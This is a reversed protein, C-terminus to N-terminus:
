LDLTRPRILLKVDDIEIQFNEKGFLFPFLYRLHLRFKPLSFASLDLKSLVEKNMNLEKKTGFTPTSGVSREFCSKSDHADALEAVEALVFSTRGKMLASGIEICFYIM